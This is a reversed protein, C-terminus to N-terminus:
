PRTSRRQLFLEVSSAFALREGNSTRVGQLEGKDFYRRAMTDSLGIRRAVTGIPLLQASDNQVRAMNRIM